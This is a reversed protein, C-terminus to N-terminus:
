YPERKLGATLPEQNAGADESVRSSKSRRGRRGEGTSAKGREM